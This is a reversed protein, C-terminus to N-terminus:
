GYSHRRNVEQWRVLIEELTVQFNLQTGIHQRGTLLQEYLGYLCSLELQQSINQLPEIFDQNYFFKPNARYVCKITDTVWSILWDLLEVKPVKDWKEAVIVPFTKQSAILLWDNFCEERQKLIGIDTLQEAKLLSGKLLGALKIKDENVGNERLWQQIIELKPTGLSIKQCRSAITAPLKNPKDTILIFVTRENPEELCKLFANAASITLMDAPNIIIARYREFQPKLYTDTILARIQNISIAKKDEEPLMEIFDPHTGAAILNCYYCQGCHFGYDTPNLCLLSFAFQRALATKGIGRAGSIMIAQPIRQQTNYQNLQQWDKTLWPFLFDVSM